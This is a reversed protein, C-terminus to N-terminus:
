RPGIQASSVAQECEADVGEGTDGAQCGVSVQLGDGVIVYWRISSGSGPTERYSVVDRGAFRTSPSFETVVDDGRQAIRNGLSTAVTALTADGRVPSQVVLLRRGNQPDAFVTRNPAQASGSVSGASPTPGLASEKWAAPVVVSTRGLQATRTTSTPDDGAQLVTVTVVVVTVVAALVAAAWVWMRSMRTPKAPESVLPEILSPAAARMLSVDLRGTRWGYRGILRRDTGVVRGALVHDTIVGIARANETRDAGDVIVEEVDDDILAEIRAGADAAGPDIVASREIEWGASARRLIQVDWRVRPPRAPDVSGTPLRTTEVVACRAVTIDAHSRAILVARPILDAPVGLATVARRLAATRVRGWTSPHGVIMARAGVGWDGFVMQWVQDAYRRTGDLVVTTADVRNMLAAVDIRSAVPRGDLRVDGYGLDVILPRGTVPGATPRM